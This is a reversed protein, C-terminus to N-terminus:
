PTWTLGKAELELKKSEVHGMQGENQVRKAGNQEIKARRPEVNAGRPWHPLKRLKSGIYVWSVEVEVREAMGFVNEFFCQRTSHVNQLYMEYNVRGFHLGSLRLVRLKFGSAFGLDRLKFGFHSM